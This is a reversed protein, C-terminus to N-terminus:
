KQSSLNQLIGNLIAAVQAKTQGDIPRNKGTCAGFYLCGADPVAVSLMGGLAMAASDQKRQQLRLLLGKLASRVETTTAKATLGSKTVEQKGQVLAKNKSLNSFIGQLINAVQARTAPSLNSGGGCNTGYGFPCPDADYGPLSASKLCAAPAVGFAFLMACSVRVLTQM